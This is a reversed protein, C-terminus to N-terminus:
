NLILRVFDGTTLINYYIFEIDLRWFHMESLPLNEENLPLDFRPSWGGATDYPAFGLGHSDTMFRILLKAANVNEANDAIYLSSINPLALAPTLDTSFNLPLGMEARRRLATSTTWGLMPEESGAVTQSIEASSILFIIDNAYFRRMFEHAATPSNPHLEIPRGFVREYDAAMEDAYKIMITLQTLTGLHELPHRGMIRGYWEPKTTDWWSTIPAGDPFLDTNYFWALFEVFFPFSTLMLDPTIYPVIDYPRWIHLKGAHVFEKLLSGDPDGLHLVDANRLGAAQERYFRAVMEATGINHVEVYIDPYREMFADAVQRSRSTNSYWVVRGEQIALALIEEYSRYNDLNENAWASFWEEVPAQEAPADPAAPVESASTSSTPVAAPAAPIAVDPGACAVFVVSLMLAFISKLRFM